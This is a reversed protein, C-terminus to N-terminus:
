KEGKMKNLYKAKNKRFTTESILRINNEKCWKIYNDYETPEVRKVYVTKKKIIHKYFSTHSGFLHRAIGISAGISVDFDDGDHCKVKEISDDYFKVVVIRAPEDVYINKVYDKYLFHKRSKSDFKIEFAHEPFVTTAALPSMPTSFYKNFMANIEDHTYTNNKIKKDSM